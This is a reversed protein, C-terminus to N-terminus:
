QGHRKGMGAADRLRAITNRFSHDVVAETIKLVNAIERAPVGALKAMLVELDENSCIRRASDLLRGAELRQMAEAPDHRADAHSEDIEDHQRQRRHARLVFHATRFLFSLVPKADATMTEREFRWKQWRDFFITWVDQALDDADAASVRMAFWARVIGGYLAFLREFSQQAGIEGMARAILISQEGTKPQGM